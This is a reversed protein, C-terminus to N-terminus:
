RGDERRRYDRKQCRQSCFVKTIYGVFPKGCTRCSGHYLRRRKIMRRGVAERDIPVGLTYVIPTQSDLNAV